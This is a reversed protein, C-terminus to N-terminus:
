GIVLPSPFNAGDRHRGDHAQAATTGLLLTTLGALALRQWPNRINM